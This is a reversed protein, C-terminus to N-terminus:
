TKLTKQNLSAAQAAAKKISSVFRYVPCDMHLWNNVLLM